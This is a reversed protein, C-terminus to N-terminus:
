CTITFLFPCSPEKDFCQELFTKLRGIKIPETMGHDLLSDLFHTGLELLIRQSKKGQNEIEVKTSISINRAFYNIQKHSRMCNVNMKCELCKVNWNWFYM